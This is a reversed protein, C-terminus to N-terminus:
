FKIFKMSRKKVDRMIEIIYNESRFRFSSSFFWMEPRDNFQLFVFFDCTKVLQKDFVVMMQNAEIMEAQNLEAITDDNSPINLGGAISETEDNIGAATAASADTSIMLSNNANTGDGRQRNRLTPIVKDEYPTPPKPYDPSGYNGAGAGAGAYVSIRRNANPLPSVTSDHVSPPLGYSVM